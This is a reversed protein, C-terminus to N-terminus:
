SFENSAAMADDDDEEKYASDWIYQGDSILRSCSIGGQM